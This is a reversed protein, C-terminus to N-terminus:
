RGAHCGRIRCPGPLAVQGAPRLFMGERQGTVKESARSGWPAKAAPGELAVELSEARASRPCDLGRVSHGQPHGWGRVSGGAARGAVPVGLAGAAGGQPGPFRRTGQKEGTSEMSSNTRGGGLFARQAQAGEQQRGQGWADRLEPSMLKGEWWGALSGGPGRPAEPCVGARAERPAPAASHAPPWTAQGWLGCRAHGGGGRCGPRGPDPAARQTLVCPKDQTGLFLRGSHYLTDGLFLPRARPGRPRDQLLGTPNLGAAM